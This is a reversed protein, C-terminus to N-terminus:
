RPREVVLHEDVIQRAVFRMAQVVDRGDDPVSAVTLAGHGLERRECGGTEAIGDVLVDYPNREVLQAPATQELFLVLM